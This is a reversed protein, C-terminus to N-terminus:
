WASPDSVLTTFGGGTTVASDGAFTAAPLADNASVTLPLPNLANETTWNLPTALGVVTTLVCASLAVISAASTAVVPVASMETKVPGGPPPTEDDSVSDISGGGVSVTLSAVTPGPALSVTVSIFPKPM